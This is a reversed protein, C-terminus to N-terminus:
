RQGGGLKFLELAERVIPEKLLEQKRMEIRQRERYDSVCSLCAENMTEAQGGALKTRGEQQPPHTWIEAVWDMSKLRFINPYLWHHNEENILEFCLDSFLNSGLPPVSKSM